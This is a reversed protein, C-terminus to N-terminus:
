QVDTDEANILKEPKKRKTYDNYAAIFADYFLEAIYTAGQPSFHTYDPAALPPDANVWSPMSNKGGMANYMDWFAGGAKLTADKLADRVNPLLPYSVYNEGEKYSMDSPGIVIIGIGPKAKKLYMLQTYFWNGYRIAAEEDKIYPVANGGFQLLLLETNTEELMKSWLSIDTKVFDTGSSGRLAINDLMVGSPTGLELAYFDPSTKTELLLEVSGPTTGFNYEFVNLQKFPVEVIQKAPEDNVLLALSLTDSSPGYFLRMRTFIKSSAYASASPKLKVWAQHVKRKGTSDRVTIFPTFKSFSMMVGYKNHPVEEDVRGFNTYRKWNDSSQQVITSRPFIELLSLLGPGNGGFKQQIKNRLFASIRDGEIQSDGIHLIRVLKNQLTASELKSFFNDLADKKDPPFQLFQKGPKEKEIVLTDNDNLSSDAAAIINSIDVYQPKEDFFFKQFQPFKLTVINGLVIGDAPFVLMIAGLMLLVSATFLLIHRPKLM